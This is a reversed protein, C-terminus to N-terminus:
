QVTFEVIGAPVGDVDIEVTYHGAQMGDARSFAFGVHDGAMPKEEEKVSLGDPGSWYVKATGGRGGTAISAYVTDDVSYAPKAGTASQNADLATGLRVADAAVEVAEVPPADPANIAAGPGSAAADNAPGAAAGDADATAEADAAPVDIKEECAALVIAALVACFALRLPKM